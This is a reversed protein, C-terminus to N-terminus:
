ACGIRLCCMGEENRRCTRPVYYDLTHKEFDFLVSNGLSYYM